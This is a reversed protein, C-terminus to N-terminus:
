DLLSNMKETMKLRSYIDLLIKQTQKDKPNISYVKEFHPLAKNFEVDAKAELDKGKLNYEKVSMKSTQKYYDAAQHYYFAGLNFLADTNDPKLEIAKKYYDPAKDKPGIQESIVGLNFYLLSNNPDKQIAEELNKKALDSKGQLLYVNFEETIFTIENPFATKAKAIIVLAKDYNKETDKAYHIMGYYMAVSKYNMSELKENISNVLVYDQKADAAYSAYVYATTDLPKISQAANYYGLSKDFKKNQYSAVGANILHVWVNQLREKSDKAYSGNPKDFSIAKQFAEHSTLIANTDLAFIEQKKSLAISEYVEGKTFWAKPSNLTKENVVAKDIAEKAKVYNSDRQYFIADVVLSNQAPLTISLSTFVFGIISIKYINM